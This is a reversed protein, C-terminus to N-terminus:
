SISQKYLHTDMVLSLRLLPRSTGRHVEKLRYPTPSDFFLFLM